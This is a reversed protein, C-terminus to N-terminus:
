HAATHHAASPKHPATKKEPQVFGDRLVIEARQAATDTAPIQTYTDYTGNLEAAPQLKYEFGVAPIEKEPLPEKMNVIFDAIKADKADQTVAVKIVSASAEIVIGPVPTEKDKLLAWLKDADDKTGMALVTEKDALALTTLDPTAALLDHIQEAPTKAPDIKFTGPPFTTAAAATKIADLGDLAGHYKKYYYELKPEIQAKYAPPAFDWVRAFFWVAQPLDQGPGPLSFATALQLSDALGQTKSQDDTYLMLESKYENEASKFDKKSIADDLALASHFIPYAANTLKKWEDDSLGAAKPDSLGKQALAAADDCTQADSTKGCQSKKILVSYLIAKLNTPDVQLLRTAASLEKDPDNIGQYTDVLMDLVARKVQSQPYTTLFSELAAAKAKPDSQTTAMQYANYEAPDKISITSSDQAPAAATAQAQLTPLSVLSMSALAMVSAFVLKKMRHEQSIGFHLDIDICESLFFDVKGRPPQIGPHRSLLVVAEVATNSPNYFAKGERVLL